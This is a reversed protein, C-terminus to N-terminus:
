KEWSVPTLPPTKFALCSVSALAQRSQSFVLGTQAGGRLAQLLASAWQRCVALRCLVSVDLLLAAHRFHASIYKEM